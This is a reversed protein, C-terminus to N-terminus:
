AANEKILRKQPMDNSIFRCNSVFFIVSDKIRGLVPRWFAIKRKRMISFARFINWGAAKLFVSMRVAGMGRRRLQGFGTKRKLGSNVSEGGSRLRYNERFANTDQERRRAAIRRSKATHRLVFTGKINKVPCESSFSCNLCERAEMVTRVEGTQPNRVSSVPSHGAPCCRVQETQEDVGFDDINLDYENEAGSKGKVPSQLEVGRSAAEQVNADSGYAGDALMEEPTFGNKQLQELM